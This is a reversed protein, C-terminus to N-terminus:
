LFLQFTSSQKAHPQFHDLTLCVQKLCMLRVKEELRVGCTKNQVLYSHKSDLHFKVIDIKYASSYSGMVRLRPRFENAIVQTM